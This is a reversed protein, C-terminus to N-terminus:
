LFLQRFPPYSKVSGHLNRLDRERSKFYHASHCRVTSRAAASSGSFVARVSRSASIHIQVSVAINEGTNQAWEGDRSSCAFFYIGWGPFTTTDRPWESQQPGPGGRPIDILLADQMHLFLPRLNLPSHSRDCPFIRIKKKTVKNKKFHPM